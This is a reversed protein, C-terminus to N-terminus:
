GKVIFRITTFLNTLLYTSLCVILSDIESMMLGPSLYQGSNSMV